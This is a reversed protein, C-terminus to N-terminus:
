SSVLKYGVGRINIIKINLDKSLKKKLKVIFVHLSRTNFFDDDGWLELLVSKNDLINNQNKCLRLLIEAERHSLDEKCNDCILTQHIFDFTYTGINYVTQEEKKEKLNRNLLGKIRVILEDMGFPKKLYDNGGTEFGQVVDETKSKASLFLIPTTKDNQRILETMSLGDLQPMMIDTVVIDPKFEYFLKLGENGTSACRIEFGQKELVDRVIMALSTEDEVLLLKTEM